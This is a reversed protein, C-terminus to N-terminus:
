GKEKQSVESLRVEDLSCWAAFIWRKGNHMYDVIEKDMWKNNQVQATELDQSNYIISGFVYPHTRNRLM